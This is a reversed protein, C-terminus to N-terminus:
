VLILYWMAGSNDRVQNAIQVRLSETEAEGLVTTYTLDIDHETEIYVSTPDVPANRITPDEIYNIGQVLDNDNDPYLALAAADIELDEYYPNNEKLWLLATLIKNRNARIPVPQGPAVIAIIPLQHPLPPLQLMRNIFEPLDNNFSICHGKMYMGGCSVHYIRMVVALRAVCAQEIQNLVQLCAPSPSAHMDNAASFMPPLGQKKKERRCRNCKKARPSVPVLWRENCIICTSWELKALDSHMSFGAELIPNPPMNDLSYDGSNLRRLRERRYDALLRINTDMEAADKDSPFFDNTWKYIEPQAHNGEFYQEGEDYIEDELCIHVRELLCDPCQMNDTEQTEVDQTPLQTFENSMTKKSSWRYSRSPPAPSVQDERHQRIPVYGPDPLEDPDSIAQDPNDSIVTTVSNITQSVTPQKKTCRRKKNSIRHVPDNAISNNCFTMNSDNCQLAKSSLNDGSDTVESWKKKSQRIKKRSPQLSPGSPQYHHDGIPGSQISVSPHEFIAPLGTSLANEYCYSFIHCKSFVKNREAITLTM